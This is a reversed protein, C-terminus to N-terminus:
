RRSEQEPKVTNQQFSHQKPKLFFKIGSSLRDGVFETKAGKPTNKKDASTEIAERFVIGTKLAYVLFRSTFLM